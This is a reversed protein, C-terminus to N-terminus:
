QQEGKKIEEARSKWYEAKEKAFEKRDIETDQTKDHLISDNGKGRHEDRTLEALPSDSKQGIHHLEIPNGDKDLPPKGKEMRQLNTEGTNEDIQNIDIDDRILALKDGITAEKLNAKKYIELEKETYIHENIKNSYPSNDLIKYKEEVMDVEDRRFSHSVEKLIGNVELKDGSIGLKESNKLLENPSMKKNIEDFSPKFNELKNKAIESIMAEYM